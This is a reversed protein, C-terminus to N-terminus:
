SGVVCLEVTNATDISKQKSIRITFQARRLKFPSTQRVKEHARDVNSRNIVGDKVETIVSIKGDRHGATACYRRQQQRKPRFSTRTVCSPLGSALTKSALLPWRFNRVNRQVLSQEAPGIPVPVEQMLDSDVSPRFEGEAPSFASTAGYHHQLSSRSRWSRRPDCLNRKSRSYKTQHSFCILDIEGKRKTQEREKDVKTSAFLCIKYCQSKITAQSKIAVIVCLLM